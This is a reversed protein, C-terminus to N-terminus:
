LAAFLSVSIPAIISLILGSILAHPIFSDGCSQRIMPLTADMATAGATAISAQPYRWGFTYMLIIAMMERLLDTMLAISGLEASILKSVVIGSMSYFGHGQTLAILHMFKFDSLIFWCLLASGVSALIAIVPLYLIKIHFMNKQVPAKRFDIGILLMFFLLLYWSNFDAAFNGLPSLYLLGGFILAILAKGINFVTHIFIKSKSQHHNKNRPLDYRYLFVVCLFTMVTSVAAIILSTNLLDLWNNIHSLHYSFEYAIAVLLIYSFYGLCKIFFTRIIQPLVNASLYGLVLFFLLQFVLIFSSM